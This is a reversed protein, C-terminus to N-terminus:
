AELAEPLTLLPKPESNNNMTSNATINTEHVLRHFDLESASSFRADCIRCKVDSRNKHKIKHQQLKAASSFNMSCKACKFLKSNMHVHSHGQLASLSPFRKFCHRCDYLTPNIESSSLVKGGPLAESLHELAHTTLESEDEFQQGCHCVFSTTATTTSSDDSVPVPTSTASESEKGQNTIGTEFTGTSAHNLFHVAFETNPVQEQCLSCKTANSDSASPSAAMTSSDDLHYEAHLKLQNENRITQRCIVCSMDSIGDAHQQAHLVCAEVSTLISRCIACRNGKPVKCHHRLRHEDLANENPCDKDCVFCKLAKTNGYSFMVSPVIQLQNSANANEMRSVKVPSPAPLMSMFNSIVSNASDPRDHVLQVHAELLEQSDFQLNRDNQKCSICSYRHEQVAHLLMHENYSTAQTFVKMCLRCRQLVETHITAHHQRYDKASEFTKGCPQCTWQTNTSVFHEMAHTIKAAPTPFVAKCIQCQHIAVDDSPSTRLHHVKMHSVFAILSPLVTDCQSCKFETVSPQTPPTSSHPRKGLQSPTPPDQNIPPSNSPPNSIAKSSNALKKLLDHKPRLLEIIHHDYDKVVLEGNNNPSNLRRAVDKKMNCFFEWLQHTSWNEGKVWKTIPMALLTQRIDNLAAQKLTRYNRTGTSMGHAFLYRYKHFERAAARRIAHQGERLSLTAPNRDRFIDPENSSAKNTLVLDLAAVSITNMM